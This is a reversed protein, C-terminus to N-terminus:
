GRGSKLVADDIAYVAWTKGNYGTFPKVSLIGELTIADTTFRATRERLTVAIAHHAQGGIGYPCEKERLMIFQRINNDTYQVAGCMFGTIRVRKGDLDRVRQTLMWDQFLTDPEMPLDLDEYSIPRVADPDPQAVTVVSQDRESGAPAVPPTAPMFCGAFLLVAALLCLSRIM